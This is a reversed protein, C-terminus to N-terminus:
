GVRNFLSDLVQDLTGEWHDGTALSSTVRLPAPAVLVPLSTLRTTRERVQASFLRGLRRRRDSGLVIAGASREIATAVIRSPVGRYSAVCVSGSARVGNDALQHVAQAVLDTAEQRTHLTVGHGGVVRENVHLVHVSTALDARQALAATFATAVDGAPSDDLALLIREFM